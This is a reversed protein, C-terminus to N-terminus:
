NYGFENQSMNLFKGSLSISGASCSGWWDWFPNCASGPVASSSDLKGTRHYYSPGFVAYGSWLKTAPINIIPDVMISYVSSRGGPAQALHLASNRLPLNDWQFDARLGLYRNSNRAVGVAAVGGGGRVFNRTAGNTLSGGGGVNFTWN